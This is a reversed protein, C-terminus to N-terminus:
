FPFGLPFIKEFWSPEPAPEPEPEPAPAVESEGPYEYETRYKVEASAWGGLTSGVVFDARSPPASQATGGSRVGTDPMQGANSGYPDTAQATVTGILFM